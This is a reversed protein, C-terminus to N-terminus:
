EIGYKKMISGVSAYTSLCCRHWPMINRIVAQDM